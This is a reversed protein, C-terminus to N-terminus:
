QRHAGPEKLEVILAHTPTTGVNEGRHVQADGWLFDGGQFVKVAKRGDPFTLERRFPGLAYLFFDPHRHTPSVTGPTDQHEIVRVRANEFLVRYNAPSQVVPDPAQPPYPAALLSLLLLPTSKIM